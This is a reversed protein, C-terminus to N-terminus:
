GDASVFATTQSINYLKLLRSSKYAITCIELLICSVEELGLVIGLASIVLFVASVLNPLAYPWKRMWGVGDEGGILSDSGFISPYSGVPDALLGGEHPSNAAFNLTALTASSMGLIPGIIVGINFTMPLILFARSQYRGLDVTADM